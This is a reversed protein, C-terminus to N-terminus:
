KVDDSMEYCIIFLLLINSFFGRSPLSAAAGDFM